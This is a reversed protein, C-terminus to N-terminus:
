EEIDDQMTRRRRETKVRVADAVDDVQDVDDGESDSQIEDVDRPQSRENAEAQQLRTIKRILVPDPALDEEKLMTDCVPCKVQQMHNQPNRRSGHGTHPRQKRIMEVIEKKEFSHPCKKSTIPDVFSRMTIPCRTSIKERAVAIDDDDEDDDGTGTVGPQPGGEERFWRSAHEVPVDGQPHQADHLVRKFDVYWPHESYKIASTKLQYSDRKQQLLDELRKTPAPPRQTEPQSDGQLTPQTEEDEEDGAGEDDEADEMDVDGDEQVRRRRRGSHSLRRQSQRSQQTQAQTGALQSANAGEDRVERLSSSLSELAKEGDITTRVRQEMTETVTKVDEELKALAEDLDEDEEQRDERGSSRKTERARKKRANLESKESVLFDNLNGVEEQIRNAARKVEDRLGGAGDNEDRILKALERQANETLPHSPPEYNPCQSILKNLPFSTEATTGAASTSPANSRGRASPTAASRAGSPAVSATSRRSISAM